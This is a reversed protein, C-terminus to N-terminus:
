DREADFTSASLSEKWYHHKQPEKARSNLAHNELGGKTTEGLKENQKARDAHPPV